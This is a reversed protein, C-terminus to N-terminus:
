TISLLRIDSWEKVLQWLMDGYTEAIKNLLRDESSAIEGSKGDVMTVINKKGAM